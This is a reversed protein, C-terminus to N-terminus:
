EKHEKAGSDSADELSKAQRFLDLVDEDSLDNLGRAALTIKQHSALYRRAEAATYTDVNMRKDSVVSLKRKADAMRLKGAEERASMLLCQGLKVLSEANEGELADTDSMTQLEEVLADLFRENRPKDGNSHSM